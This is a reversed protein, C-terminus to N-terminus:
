KELSCLLSSVIVSPNAVASLHRSDWVYRRQGPAFRSALYARRSKVQYMPLLCLRERIPLYRPLASGPRLAVTRRPLSRSQAQSPQRKLRSGPM